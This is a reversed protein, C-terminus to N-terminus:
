TTSLETVLFSAVFEIALAQSSHRQIPDDALPELIVIRGPDPLQLLMIHIFYKPFFVKNEPSSFM